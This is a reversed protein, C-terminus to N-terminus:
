SDDEIWKMDTISIFIGGCNCIFNGKNVKKNNCKECVVVKEKEKLFNIRLILQLLYVFVSLGIALLLIILLSSIFEILNSPESGFYTKAGGTIKSIIM